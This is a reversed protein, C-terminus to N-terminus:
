PWTLELDVGTNTEPYRFPIGSVTQQFRISTVKGSTASALAPDIPATDKFLGPPPQITVTYGCDADQYTFARKYNITVTDRRSNTVLVYRSQNANLNIPLILNAQERTATTSYLQSITAPKAISGLGYVDTLRFPITARITLNLVPEDFPGCNKRCGLLLYILSVTLVFSIYRM